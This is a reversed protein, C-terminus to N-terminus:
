NILQNILIIAGGGKAEGMTALYQKTMVVADLASM